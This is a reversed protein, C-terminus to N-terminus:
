PIILLPVESYFSTRKIVDEQLLKNFFNYKHNILCLLQSESTKLYTTLTNAESELWELKKFSHNFSALLGEIHQKNEKQVASLYQDESLNVVEIHADYLTSLDVIPKIEKPTVSKQYNTSFVIKKIPVFDYDFPVVLIPCSRVKHIMALTRTTLFIDSKGRAGRTGSVMLDIELSNLVTELAHVISDSKILSKFRHNDATTQNLHAVHDKLKSEAEDDMKGFWQENYQESLLQSPRVEHVHLLHFTIEADEFLSIAYVLANEAIESFDFPILINKM